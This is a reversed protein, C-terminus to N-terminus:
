RQASFAHTKWHASMIQALLDPTNPVRQLHPYRPGGHYDIPLTVFRNSEQVLL